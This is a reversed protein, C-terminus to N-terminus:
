PMSLKPTRTCYIEERALCNLPLDSESLICISCQQKDTPTQSLAQVMEVM